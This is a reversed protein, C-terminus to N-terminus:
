DMLSSHIIVLTHANSHTIVLTATQHRRSLQTWPWCVVRSIQQSVRFSTRWPVLVTSPALSKATELATM